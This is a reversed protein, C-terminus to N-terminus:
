TLGTTAVELGAMTTSAIVTDFDVIRMEAYAEGEPSWFQHVRRAEVDVVWYEPIGADAYLAKKFNLDINLTTVSVEVVLLVSSAPYFGDVNPMDCVIIDPEPASGTGIAITPESLAELPLGLELIKSQLRFTLRNKALFHASTQPSMEYLVGDLLELRPMAAFAGSREFALLEDVTLRHPKLDTIPLSANMCNPIALLMVLSLDVAGKREARL